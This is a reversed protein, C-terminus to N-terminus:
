MLIFYILIALGISKWITELYSQQKYEMEMLSPPPEPISGHFQLAALSPFFGWGHDHLQGLGRMILENHMRADRQTVATNYSRAGAALVQQRMRHQVNADSKAKAIVDLEDKEKMLRGELERILDRYGILLARRENTSGDMDTSDSRLLSAFSFQTNSSVDLLAEMSKAIDLCTKGDENRLSLKPNRQLIYSALDLNGSSVMQQIISYM